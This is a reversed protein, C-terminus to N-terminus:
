NVNLKAYDSVYYCDHCLYETPGQKDNTIFVLKTGHTEFWEECHYCCKWKAPFKDALSAKEDQMETYIARMQESLALKADAIDKYKRELTSLKESM